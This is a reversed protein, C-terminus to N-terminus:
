IAKDSIIWKEWSANQNATLPLVCLLTDVM